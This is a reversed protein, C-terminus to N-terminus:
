SSDRPSIGRLVGTTEENGKKGPFSLFRLLTRRLSARRHLIRRHRSRFSRCISPAGVRRAAKLPLFADHFLRKAGAAVYANLASRRRGRFVPSNQGPPTKKRKNREREEVPFFSFSFRCSNQPFDRRTIKYLFNHFVYFRKACDRVESGVIEDFRQRVM